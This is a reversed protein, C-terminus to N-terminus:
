PEEPVEACFVGADSVEDGAAEPGHGVFARASCAVARGEAAVGELEALAVIDAHGVPRLDGIAVQVPPERHQRVLAVRVVLRRQRDVLRSM